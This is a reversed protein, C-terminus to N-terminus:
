AGNRKRQELSHMGTMRRKQAGNQEKQLKEAESQRKKDALLEDLDRDREEKKVRREAKEARLLADRDNKEKASRESEKQLKEAKSQLKKDVLREVLDRDLEEKKVRQEAEEARLLADRDYKEKASREARDKATQAGQLTEYERNAYEYSVKENMLDAMIPAAIGLTVIGVVVCSAVKDGTDWTATIKTIGNEIEERKFNREGFM